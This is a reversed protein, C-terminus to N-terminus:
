KALLKSKVVCDRVNGEKDVTESDGDGVIHPPTNTTDNNTSNWYSNLNYFEVGAPTGGKEHTVIGGGMGASYEARGGEINSKYVAEGADNM